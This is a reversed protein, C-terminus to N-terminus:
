SQRSPFAWILLVSPDLEAEATSIFDGKISSLNVDDPGPAPLDYKEATM